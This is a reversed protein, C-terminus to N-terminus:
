FALTAEREINQRLREKRVPEIVIDVSCGLIQELRQILADLRGFYAFGGQAAEPRLRVVVDVDSAGTADGRAVSGFLSLREVGAAKLETEHARLLTIAQQREM